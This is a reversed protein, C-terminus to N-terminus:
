VQSKEEEQKRCSTMWGSLKDMERKRPWREAKSSCHAGKGARRDDGIVRRQEGKM